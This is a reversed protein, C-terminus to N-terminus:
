SGTWVVSYVYERDTILILKHVSSIAAERSTLLFCLIYFKLLKFGTACLAVEPNQDTLEAVDGHTSRQTYRSQVGKSLPTIDV